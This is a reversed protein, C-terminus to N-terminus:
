NSIGVCLERRQGHVREMLHTMGLEPRYSLNRRFALSDEFQIQVVDVLLLDEGCIRQALEVTVFYCVELSM